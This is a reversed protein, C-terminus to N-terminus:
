NEYFLKTIEKKVITFVDKDSHKKQNTKILNLMSKDKHMTQLLNFLKNKVNKEEVMIGFGKSM